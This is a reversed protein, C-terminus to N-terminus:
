ISLREVARAVMALCRRQDASLGKLLKNRRRVAVTEEASDGVSCNIAVQQLFIEAISPPFNLAGGSPLNEFQDRM